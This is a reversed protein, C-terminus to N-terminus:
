EGIEHDAVTPDILVGALPRERANPTSPFCELGGHDSLHLRNNPSHVAFANALPGRRFTCVQTYRHAWPGYRLTINLAPDTITLGPDMGSHLLSGLTWVQTYYHAWPGYRLTVTLGPDMGSHLPSGLTWVQTYRHAWPGYRLTVTLGPDM